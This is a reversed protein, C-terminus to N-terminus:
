KEVRQGTKNVYLERIWGDLKMNVDIARTEDYNVAGVANIPQDLSGKIAVSVRVGALQQRRDDIRVTTKAPIELNPPREVTAAARGHSKSVVSTVAAAGLIALLATFRLSM